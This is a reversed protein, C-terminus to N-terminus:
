KKGVRMGNWRGSRIDSLIYKNSEYMKRSGSWRDYCFVYVTLTASEGSELLDEMMLTESQRKQNIIQGFIPKDFRDTLEPRLSILKSIGSRIIPMRPDDIYIRTIEYNDPVESNLGKIRLEAFVEVDIIDRMGSNKFKIRYTMGSPKEPRSIRSIDPSFELKPVVFHAVVWWAILSALVGLPIGILLGVIEM